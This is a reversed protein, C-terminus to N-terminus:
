IFTYKGWRFVTVDVEATATGDGNVTWVNKKTAFQKTWGDVTHRYNRSKASSETRAFGRSVIFQVPYYEKGQDVLSVVAVCKVVQLDDVEFDVYVEETHTKDVDFPNVNLPGSWWSYQPAAGSSTPAGQTWGASHTMQTDGIETSKGACAGTADVDGYVTISQIKWGYDLRSDVDLRYYSGDPIYPTHKCAETGTQVEWTGKNCHYHSRFFYDNANNCTVTAIRGQAIKAPATVTGMSADM